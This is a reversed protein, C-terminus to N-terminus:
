MAVAPLLALFPHLCGTGQERGAVGILERHFGAAGGELFGAQLKM